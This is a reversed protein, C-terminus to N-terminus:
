TAREVRIADYYRNYRHFHDKEVKVARFQMRDIFEAVSDPDDKLMQYEPVLAFIKKAGKKNFENWVYGLLQRGFGRRRFSPHVALNTIQVEKTEPHYKAVVWGVGTNSLTALFVTHDKMDLLHQIDAHDTPFECSRLEINYVKSIDNFKLQGIKIM